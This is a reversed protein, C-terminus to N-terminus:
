RASRRDSRGDNRRVFLTILCFCVLSAGFGIGRFLSDSSFRERRQEILSGVAYSSPPPVYGQIHVPLVNPPYYGLQRAELRITDPDSQLSALKGGLEGNLRALKQLNQELAVKYHLLDQTAVVGTKGFLLTALCYVVFGVYLSM